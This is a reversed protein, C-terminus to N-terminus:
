EKDAFVVLRESYTKSINDWDGECTILNLHAKGDNSNFVDLAEAKPNYSRRERVVFTVIGGKEDEVYLKDGKELKYLDSFVASVFGKLGFHGVIVASGREGPRPGLNFWAANTVIKPVGVAGQSTLNVYEITADVNIKPIRLSIPLGPSVQEASYYTSIHGPLDPVFFFFIILFFAIVVIGFISVLWKLLNKLQMYKKLSKYRLPGAM